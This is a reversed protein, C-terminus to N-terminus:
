EKTKILQDLISGTSIIPGEDQDWYGLSFYWSLHSADINLCLHLSIDGQTIELQSM